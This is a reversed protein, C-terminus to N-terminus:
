ALREAKFSFRSIVNGAPDSVEFNWDLDPRMGGFKIERIMDCATVAAEDWLASADTGDLPVSWEEEIGNALIRLQYSMTTSQSDHM